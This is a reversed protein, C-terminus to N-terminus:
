GEKEQSLLMEKLIREGDAGTTAVSKAKKNKKNLPRWKNKELWDYVDDSSDSTYSKTRGTPNGKLDRVQLVVEFNKSEGKELM